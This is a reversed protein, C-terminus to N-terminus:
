IPLQLMLLPLAMAILGIVIVLVSTAALLFDVINLLTATPGGSGLLGRLIQVIVGVASIAVWVPWADIFKATLWPMTDAYWRTYHPGLVAVLLTFCLATGPAIAKDVRTGLNEPPLGLTM